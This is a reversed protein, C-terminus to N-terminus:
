VAIDTMICYVGLLLIEEGALICTVEIDAPIAHSARRFTLEVSDELRVDLLSSYALSTVLLLIHGVQIM